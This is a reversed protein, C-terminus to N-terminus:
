CLKDMEMWPMAFSLIEDKEHSFTYEMTYIFWMKSTQEDM